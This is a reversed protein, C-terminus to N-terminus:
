SRLTMLCVACVEITHADCCECCGAGGLLFTGHRHLKEAGCLHCPGYIASTLRRHAARRIQRLQRKQARTM